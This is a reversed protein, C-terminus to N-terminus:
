STQSFNSPFKLQSFKNTSTKNFLFDFNDLALDNKTLFFLNLVEILEKSVLSV